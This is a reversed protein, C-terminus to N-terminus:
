ANNKAKKAREIAIVFKEFDRLAAARDQENRGDFEFKQGDYEFKAKTTTGVVRDYLWKGFQKLTDLNIKVDLLNGKEDGKPIMGTSMAETAAVETVNASLRDLQTALNVLISRLEDADARDDQVSLLFDISNNM